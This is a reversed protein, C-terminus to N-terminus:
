DDFSLLKTSKLKKIDKKSLTEKSKKEIKSKPKGKLVSAIEKKEPTDILKTDSDAQIGLLDQAEKLTVGEQLEIQPKEEQNDQEETENLRHRYEASMMKDEIAAQKPANSQMVKLFDPVDAQFQLGQRSKYNQKRGSM